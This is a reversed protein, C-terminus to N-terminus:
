RGVMKNKYRTLIQRTVTMTLQAQLSEIRLSIQNGKVQVVLGELGEIGLSNGGETVKVRDGPHIPELKVNEGDRLLLRMIEIEEDRILAPRGNWFVTSLIGPDKVVHRREADTLRVFVYGNILPKHVKKWRDSWRVKMCVLPCFVETGNGRLREAVTKEHRPRVYFALWHKFNGTPENM